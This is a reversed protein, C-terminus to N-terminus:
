VPEVIVKRQRLLVRKAPDRRKSQQRRLAEHQPSWEIRRGQQLALNQAMSMSKEFVM